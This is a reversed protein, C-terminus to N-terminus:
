QKSIVAPIMAEVNSGPCFTRVRFRFRGARIPMLKAESIMEPRLDLLPPSKGEVEIALPVAALLQGSEDEAVVELGKLPFWNGLTLTLPATQVVLSSPKGAAACEKQFAPASFMRYAVEIKPKSTRATLGEAVQGFDHNLASQAVIRPAILTLLTLILAAPITRWGWKQTGAFLADPTVPRRITRLSGAYREVRFTKPPAQCQGLVRKPKATKSPQKATV